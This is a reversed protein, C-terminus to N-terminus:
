ISTVFFDLKFSSLHTQTGKSCRLHTSHSYCALFIKTDIVYHNQKYCHHIRVMTRNLWHQNVQHKNSEKWEQCFSSPRTATPLYVEDEAKDNQQIRAKLTNATQESPSLLPWDARNSAKWPCCKWDLFHFFCPFFDFFMDTNPSSQM